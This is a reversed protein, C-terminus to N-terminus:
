GYLTGYNGLQIGFMEVRSRVQPACLLWLEEERPDTYPDAARLEQDVYGPHCMLESVGQGIGEFIRDLTEVRVTQDYFDCVFHDPHPIHKEALMQRDIELCPLLEEPATQASLPARVPVGLERALELYLEFFPPWLFVFHHGDLHDPTRGAAREFAELQARWEAELERVDITERLALQQDWARFAGSAEVLSPVQSSNLMPVGATFVLHVGLGLDRERAGCSVWEHSWPFNMMASASTVIGKRHAELIGRAVAPSFAFDDANVILWKGM